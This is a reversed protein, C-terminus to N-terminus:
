AAPAVAPAPAPEVPPAEPPANPQGEVPAAANGGIANELEDIRRLNLDVARLRLFQRLPGVDVRRTPAVLPGALVIDVQPVGSTIAEEGVNGSVNWRSDLVLRTLDITAAGRLTAGEAAVLVNQARLSGSAISFTGDIRGFALPADDLADELIPVVEDGEPDLAGADFAAIVPAFAESSLARITGAGVTFSGSGGLTAALGAISRGTADFNLTGDLAGTLPPMAGDEALLAGIEAGAIRATGTVAASGDAVRRIVLNGALNGGAIEGALGELSLNGGQSGLRFAASEIAIRDNVSLRDATVAIDLDATGVLSITLPLQPWVTEESFSPVSWVGAGLALESIARIDLRDAALAGSVRPRDGGTTLRGTASITATGALGELRTIEVATGDLTVDAALDVPTAAAAAPLLSGALALLPRADDSQLTLSLMGARDAPDAPFSATGDLGIMTPGFSGALRLDLGTEPVGDVAIELSGPVAASQFVDFGLQRLLRTADPGALSASADIMAHRWDDIRGSLSANVDIATPGATGSLALTAATADGSARAEISAALRIPVLTAGARRALAAAPSDPAVAALFATLGEARNAAVSGTIRGEAAGFLDTIQGSAEIRGGAIDAVELRDIALTGGALSAALEVGRAVSGGFVLREAQLDLRVDGSFAESRAGFLSAFDAIEGIDVLNGSLTADLVPGSGEGGPAFALSGALSSSGIAATVDEADFGARSLMVDGALTVTGLQVPATGPRLWAALASPQESTISFAGAYVLGDAVTIDGTATLVTRGPLAASLGEIRWGDPSTLADFGINQLIAGGVVIGPVTFGITGPIPLRPLDALVSAVVDLAGGLSTPAAADAGLLRDLDFQRATLVADFSPEGALDLAATGEVALQREAPGYDFRLTRALLRDPDLSIGAEVTWPVPAAPVDPTAADSAPAAADPQPPADPVVRTLRAMADYTPVGGPFTLQGDLALRVPTDVPAYEGQLRLGQGPTVSGGSLRFTAPAGEAALTGSVTFPGLLSRATVVADIDEVAYAAGRRADAIRVTGDVIEVHDLSVSAPDFGASPASRAALWSVAGQADVRITAVPGELRMDNVRVDGSLLPWLEVDADFKAVTLLPAEPDDGVVVDTFTLSPIPLLRAEAEGRM